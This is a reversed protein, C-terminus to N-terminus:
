GGATPDDEEPSIRWKGGIVEYVANAERVFCLTAEGADTPLDAVREVPSLWLTREYMQTPADTTDEDSM